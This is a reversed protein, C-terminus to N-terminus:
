LREYWARLECCAACNRVARVGLCPALCNMVGQLPGEASLRVQLM